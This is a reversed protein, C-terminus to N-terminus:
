IEGAGELHEAKVQKEKLFAKEFVKGDASKIHYYQLKVNGSPDTRLSVNEDPIYELPQMNEPFIKHLEEMLEDFTIFQTNVNWGGLRRMRNGNAQYIKM